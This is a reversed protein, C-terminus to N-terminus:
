RAFSAVSVVTVLWDNKISQDRIDIGARGLRRAMEDGIGAQLFSNLCPEVVIARHTKANKPVFELRGPSLTVPVSEYLWDDEDIGYGTSFAATWHPVERLVEPLRGSAFLNTSCCFGQSFKRVPNADRKRLSTTAGPGFRFKLESMTPCRGLLRSIKRRAGSLASLAPPSFCNAGGRLQLFKTNVRTCESEAEAFKVWAVNEKDVGLDLWESKQFFALCQRANLVDGTRRSDDPYTLKYNVLEHVRDNEVMPVLEPSFVGASRAHRLALEKM